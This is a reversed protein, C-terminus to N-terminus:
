SVRDDGGTLAGPVRRILGASLPPVSSKRNPVEIDVMTDASLRVSASKSM